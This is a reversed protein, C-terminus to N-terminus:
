KEYTNVVENIIDKIWKGQAGNSLAEFFPDTDLLDFISKLRLDNM